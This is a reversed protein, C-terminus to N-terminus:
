AMGPVIYLGALYVPGHNDALAAEKQARRVLAQQRRKGQNLSRRAAAIGSAPTLPLFHTSQRRSAANCSRAALRSFFQLHTIPPIFSSLREITALAGARSRPLPEPPTGVGCRGSPEHRRFARKLFMQMAGAAGHAPDAREPQTGQDLAPFFVGWLAGVPYFCFGIIGCNGLAM